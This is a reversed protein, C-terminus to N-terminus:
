FRSVLYIRQKIDEYFKNTLDKKFVFIAKMKKSNLQIELTQMVYMNCNQEEKKGLDEM